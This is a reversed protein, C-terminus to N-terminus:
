FDLRSRTKRARVRRRVPNAIAAQGSLARAPDVGLISLADLVTGIKTGPDGAELTQVTRRSIGLRRALEDQTWARTLRAAAVAAGIRMALADRAEM